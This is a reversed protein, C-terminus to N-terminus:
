NLNIFGFYINAHYLFYDAQNCEYGGAVYDKISINKKYNHSIESLINNSKITESIKKLQISNVTKELKNQTKKLNSDMNYEYYDTKIMDFYYTLLEKLYESENLTQIFTLNDNLQKGQHDNKDDLYSDDYDIDSEGSIDSESDETKPIYEKDSEESDEHEPIYKQDTEKQTDIVPEDIKLFNFKKKDPKVGGYLQNMFLRIDAIKINLDNDSLYTHLWKSAYEENRPHGCTTLIPICDYICIQEKVYNDSKNEFSLMFQIPIINDENVLMNKYETYDEYSKILWIKNDGNLFNTVNTIKENYKKRLSKEYTTLVNIKPNTIGLYDFLDKLEIINVKSGKLFAYVPAFQEFTINELTIKNTKKFKQSMAFISQEYQKYMFDYLVYCRQDNLFKVLIVDNFNTNPKYQKFCRINAKLIIKNGSIVECGEHMLENRFLLCGGAKRTEPIILSNKDDFHLKTEGGEQTGELCILLAYCKMQDSIFNVFDRHKHFYGKPEYKIIDIEDQVLQVTVNLKNLSENMQDIINSLMSFAEENHMQKTQSDRLELNHENQHTQTNFIQSSVFQQASNCFYKQLKTLEIPSLEFTAYRPFKEEEVEFNHYQM